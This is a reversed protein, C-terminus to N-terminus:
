KLPMMVFVRRLNFNIRQLEWVGGGYEHRSWGLGCHCESHAFCREQHVTTFSVVTNSHTSEVKCQIVNCSVGPMLIM